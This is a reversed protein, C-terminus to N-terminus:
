GTRQLLDAFNELGESKFLYMFCLKSVSDSCVPFVAVCGNAKQLDSLLPMNEGFPSYTKMDM